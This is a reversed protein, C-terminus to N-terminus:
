KRKALGLVVLVFGGVATAMWIWLWPIEFLYEWGWMQFGLMLILSLFMIAFGLTKKDM